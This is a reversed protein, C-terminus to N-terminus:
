LFFLRIKPSLVSTMPKSFLKLSNFFTGDFITGLLQSETEITPADQGTVVLSFTRDAIQGTTSSTVRCCFTSTVDQDVTSPVGRIEYVTKPSGTISGNTENLVLGPPMYGAIIKYELEGGDPDSAEINLKYFVGEEITGLNGAATAWVPKAM